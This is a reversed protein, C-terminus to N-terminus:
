NDSDEDNFLEVLKKDIGVKHDILYHLYGEPIVYLKDDKRIELERTGNKCNCIRCNSWGRYSVLRMEMGFILLSEPFWSDKLPDFTKKDIQDNMITIHDDYTKTTELFCHILKDVIAIYTPIDNISDAVPIPYNDKGRKTKWYGIPIRTEM